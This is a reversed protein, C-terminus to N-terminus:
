IILWNQHVYFSNWNRVIYNFVDIAHVRLWIQLLDIAHNIVNRDVPNSVCDKRKANDKLGKLNYIGYEIFIKGFKDLLNHKKM